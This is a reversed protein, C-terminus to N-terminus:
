LSGLVPGHLACDEAANVNSYTRQSPQLQALFTPDLGLTLTSTAM